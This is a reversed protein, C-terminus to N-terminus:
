KSLFLTPACVHAPAPCLSLSLSLSLSLLLSPPLSDWASEMSDAHLGTCPKFEHVTLAHGSDFDLTPPKVFQAVWAGRSQKKILIRM